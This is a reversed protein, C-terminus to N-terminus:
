NVRLREDELSKYLGPKLGARREREGGSKVISPRGGEIITNPNM